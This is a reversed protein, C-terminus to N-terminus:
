GGGGGGGCATLLASMSLAAVITARPVFRNQISMKVGGKTTCCFLTSRQGSFASACLDECEAFVGPRLNVFPKSEAHHQPVGRASSRCSGVNETPPHAFTTLSKEGVPHAV